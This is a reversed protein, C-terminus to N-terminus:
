TSTRYLYPATKYVSKFLWPHQYRPTKSETRHIGLPSQTFSTYLRRRPVWSSKEWTISTSPQNWHDYRTPCVHQSEPKNVSCALDWLATPILTHIITHGVGRERRWYQSRMVSLCSSPQVWMASPLVLVTPFSEKLSLTLALCSPGQRYNGSWPPLPLLTPLVLGAQATHFFGLCDPNGSIKDFCFWCFLSDNGASAKEGNSDDPEKHWGWGEWSQAPARPLVEVQSRPGGTNSYNGEHCIM